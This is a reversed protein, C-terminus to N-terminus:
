RLQRALREDIANVRCSPDASIHHSMGVVSQSPQGVIKHAAALRQSSPLDDQGPAKDLRLPGCRLILHDHGNSPKPGHAQGEAAGSRNGSSWAYLGAAGVLRDAELERLLNMQM